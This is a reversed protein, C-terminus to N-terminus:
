DANEEQKFRQRITMQVAKQAKIVIKISYDNNTMGNNDNNVVDM